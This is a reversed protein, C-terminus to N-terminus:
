RAGALIKGLRPHCWGDAGPAPRVETAVRAGGVATPEVLLAGLERGLRARDFLMRKGVRYVHVKGDEVLRRLAKESRVLTSFAEHAERVTLFDNKM